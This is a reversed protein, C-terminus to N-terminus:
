QCHIEAAAVHNQQMSTCMVVKSEAHLSISPLQPRKSSDERAKAKTSGEKESIGQSKERRGDERRRERSSSVENRRGAGQRRERASTRQAARRRSKSARRGGERRGLESNAPELLHRKGAGEAVQREIVQQHAKADIKTFGFAAFGQKAPKKAYENRAFYTYVYVEIM